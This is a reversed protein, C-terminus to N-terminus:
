SAWILSRCDVIAEASSSCVAVVRSIDRETVSAAPPVLSIAALMVPNGGGCFRGVPRQGLSVGRHVLQRSYGSVQAGGQASEVVSGVTGGNGARELVDPFLAGADDDPPPDTCCSSTPAARFSQGRGM